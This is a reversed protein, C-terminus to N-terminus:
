PPTPAERPLTVAFETTGQESSARIKGNHALVVQQVIHLGLGVGGTTTSALAGRRFPQFLTELVHQPIEHGENRVRLEVGNTTAVLQVQIASGPPAHELANVFLNSCVQALRDSDWHGWCEGDVTFEVNHQGGALHLEDLCGRAISELNVNQRQIPMGSEPRSRTFDLLEAIMRRMRGGARQQVALFRSVRTTELNPTSLLESAALIANLPQRLDHALMGMFRERFEAEVRLRREVEVLSAHLTAASVLTSVRALLEAETFPRNVFDNAGGALAELVYTRAASATVILIPLQARDQTERVFRCVEVGSMDPMHWDIVLAHPPTSRALAELMASGGAFSEVQYSGSLARQSMERQTPSDDVVWVRSSAPM